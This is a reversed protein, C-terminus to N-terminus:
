ASSRGSFDKVFMSGTLVWPLEGAPKGTRRDILFREPAAQQTRGDQQWEVVIRLRDGTKEGAQAKFAPPGPECGILLLAFQMASPKANIAFLSEYERSNPEVAVFELIGEALSLTGSLEVSKKEGGHIVLGPLKLVSGAQALDTTAAGAFGAALRDWTQTEAVGARQAALWVLAVFVAVFRKNLRM